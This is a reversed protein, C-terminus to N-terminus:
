NSKRRTRAASGRQVSSVSNGSFYVVFAASSDGGYTWSTAELSPTRDAPPYGVAMLVQDRTM